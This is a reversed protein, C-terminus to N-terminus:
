VFLLSLTGTVLMLGFIAAIKLAVKRNGFMLFFGGKVVTNTMAAITIAITAVKNTIDSNRSLESVSITIADVDMIGSLFSAFYLGQSGLYSTAIKALFSVFVFFVAFKLAPILTLPCEVDSLKEELKAPVKEKKSWLYLASLIGTTGMVVMPVLIHNVLENNIVSVAILVRFFMASSAIVVAIAYPNVIKKNKKSEESFSLALATSSIFGALFGTLGIGKKTGFVKIAIYSLFSLGSILVVMLWAVYPNLFDLPGINVNPLIPLVVFAILIFQFTALIETNDLDKAWDHIDRKFHLLAAVAIAITTALTIEGLAVLIGNLFVIVAAIESTVGFGANDKTTAFYSAVILVFLGSAFVIPYAISINALLQSIFGTIGILAFTRAGGFNNSHGKQYKSEREIGIIAALVIAIVLGKLIEIDM